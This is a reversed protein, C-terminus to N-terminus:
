DSYVQMWLTPSSIAQCSFQTAGCRNTINPSLRRRKFAALLGAVREEFRSADGPYGAATVIAVHIQLILPHECTRLAATTENRLLRIPPLEPKKVMSDLTKLVFTFFTSTFHVSAFSCRSDPMM